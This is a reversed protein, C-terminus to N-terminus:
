EITMRFTGRPQPGAITIHSWRGSFVGDVITGELEINNDVMHPSLNIVIVGGAAEAEYASGQTTPFSSNRSLLEWTGTFEGDVVPAAPWDLRAVAAEDGADNTFVLTGPSLVAGGGNCGAALWLSALALLTLILFSDRMAIDEMMTM